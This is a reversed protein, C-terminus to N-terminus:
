KSLEVSSKRARGRHGTGAGYGNKTGKVVVAEGFGDNSGFSRIQANNVCVFVCVCREVLMVLRFIVILAFTETAFSKFLIKPKHFM